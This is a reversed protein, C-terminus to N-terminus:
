TDITQIVADNLQLSDSKHSPNTVGIKEQPLPKYGRNKRQHRDVTAIKEQPLPKYGRNKRIPM